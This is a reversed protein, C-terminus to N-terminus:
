RKASTGDHPEAAVPEPVIALAAPSFANPLLEQMTLRFVAQDAPKESSKASSEDFTEATPENRPEADTLLYFGPEAFEAMVQRCIGCPMCPGPGGATVALRRITQAGESVAKFIATREACCTAGYSANEINCGTFVRNQDDIVAAGVRFRSYPVYAHARSEHALALLAQDDPGNMQSLRKDKM